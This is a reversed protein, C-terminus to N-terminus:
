EKELLVGLMDNKFPSKVYAMKDVISTSKRESTNLCENRKYCLVSWIMKSRAESM